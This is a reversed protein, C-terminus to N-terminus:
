EAEAWHYCLFFQHDSEEIVSILFYFLFNFVSILFSHLSEQFNEM